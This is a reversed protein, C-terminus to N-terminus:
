NERSNVKKEGPDAVSFYDHASFYNFKCEYFNGNRNKLCSLILNRPQAKMADVITAGKPIDVALKLLGDATYELNGSGKFADMATDTYYNARNFSSIIVFTSDTQKQFDKLKKAIDNLKDYESQKSDLAAIIQLYDVFFIPAKETFMNCYYGLHKLIDDINKGRVDLVKLSKKISKFDTKIADLTASYAGLKIDTSTLTTSNDRKFLECSLSKVFLELPSMENTLYIVNEGREALQNAMQWCFTTKGAGPLAGILYIGPLFKQVEDLNGFGTKRDSYKKLKNIEADFHDTFFNQFDYEDAPTSTHTNDANIGHLASDAFNFLEDLPKDLKTAQRNLHLSLEFFKRRTSYEKIKLAHDKAYVNSFALTEIDIVSELIKKDAHDTAKLEEIVSVLNPVIRRNYLDVIAKYIIKHYPFFFDDATLIAQVDPIIQGEKLLLMSLLQGELIKLDSGLEDPIKVSLRDKTNAYDM